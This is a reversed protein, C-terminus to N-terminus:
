VCRHRLESRLKSMNYAHVTSCMCKHTHTHKCCFSGILFPLPYNSEIAKLHEYQRLDYYRYAHLWLGCACMLIGQALWCVDVTCFLVCSSLEMSCFNPFTSSHGINPPWKPRFISCKSLSFVGHNATYCPSKTQMTYRESRQSGCLCAYYVSPFFSFLM